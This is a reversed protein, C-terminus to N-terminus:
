SCYKAKLDKRLIKGASSKPISDLFVIDNIKKYPAVRENVFVCIDRTDVKQSPKLVVFAKPAEGNQPHPVGIVAADNVAPHDRLVAELEAPPVQFGKVKILEKLRDAITVVGKDDITALDGSRFWGDATFAESNAQPNEKYGCMVQPGKILLEGTENPGLSNLDLDVIKVETSGVPNGVTSYNESGNVPFCVVPSTETLGYGQRYDLKRKVKDFFRRCDSAASPAAGNIVTDLYQFTQKSAAPHSSMLTLIPPAIFLLNTKFKQLSQLYVDPQFRALTVLKAGISMKHFMIVSAGYIHFFPLIAMVSDQHSKTTDNHCRIRPENIQELNAIINRHSLEVGKPLGTTGSSYPLFCVDNTSRRVAKLCSTDVHPDESLDNFVVTGEPMEDGNTRIVIIPLDLKALKLANKITDVIEPLTVVIKANSMLLQRSVEHATYIPNLTSVVGGAELIGLVVLPYDPVNPLMVSVVDGDRVQFKTRLNAAFANSLKFAQEYTYGRGSVACVSVTREPWKDLNQWIYDNLTCNPLEVNNFPSKVVKDKTWSSNRRVSVTAYKSGQCLTDLTRKVKFLSKTSSM